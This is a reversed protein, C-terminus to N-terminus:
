RKKLVFSLELGKRKGRRGIGILQLCDDYHYEFLMDKDLGKDVLLKKYHYLMWSNYAINQSYDQIPEGGLGAWMRDFLENWEPLQENTFSCIKNYRKAFTRQAMKDNKLEGLWEVYYDMIIRRKIKYKM